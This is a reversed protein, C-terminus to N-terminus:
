WSSVTTRSAEPDAWKTAPQAERPTSGVGPDGEMKWRWVEDSVAELDCGRRQDMRSFGHLEMQWRLLDPWTSINLTTPKM